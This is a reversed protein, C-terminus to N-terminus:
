SCSRRLPLRHSGVSRVLLLNESNIEPPEWLREVGELVIAIAICVLFIGNVFGGLVEFRSRSLSVYVFLM